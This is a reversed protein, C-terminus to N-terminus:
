RGSGKKRRVLGILGLGLCLYTAPEPAPTIQATGSGTVPSTQGPSISLTNVGFTFSGRGAVNSFTFTQPTSPFDVFVGGQNNATVSGFLQASIDDTNSGAIGGPATFTVDLTFTDGNYSAPAGSLTFSGLNDLNPIGAPGGIGYYGNSSTVDFTSGLYSLGNISTTGNGFFGTASGVLTVNGSGYASVAAVGLGALLLAKLVSAKESMQEGKSASHSCCNYRDGERRDLHQRHSLDDFSRGLETGVAIVEM